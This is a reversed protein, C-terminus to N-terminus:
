RDARDNRGVHGFLDHSKLGHHLVRRVSERIMKLSIRQGYLFAVLGALRVGAARGLGHDGTEVTMPTSKAWFAIVM